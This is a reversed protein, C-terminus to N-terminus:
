MMQTWILLSWRHFNTFNACVCLQTRFLRIEEAPTSCVAKLISKKAAISLCM